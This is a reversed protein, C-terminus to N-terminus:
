LTCDFDICSCISKGKKMCIGGRTGVYKSITNANQNLYVLEGYWYCGSPLYKDNNKKIYKLGLKNAALTCDEVQTVIHNSPCQNKVDAKYYQVVGLIHSLDINDTLISLPNIFSLNINDFQM